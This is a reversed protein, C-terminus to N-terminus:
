FKLFFEKIEAPAKAVIYKGVEEDAFKDVVLYEYKKIDLMMQTWDDLGMLCGHEKYLLKIFDLNEIRFQVFYNVLGRIYPPLSTGKGYQSAIIISIRYHRFNTIFQQFFKSTTDIQGQVDDFIVLGKIDSNKEHLKVYKKLTEEDYVSHVFKSPIYSYNSQQSFAATGSFVLVSNMGNEKAMRKVLHKILHSKGSKMAGCVSTITPEKGILDMILILSIIDGSSIYMDDNEFTISASIIAMVFAIIASESKPSKFLTPLYM